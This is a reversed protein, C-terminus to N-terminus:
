ELIARNSTLVTSHPEHRGRVLEHPADPEEGRLPRLGLHDIILLDLDVLRPRKRDFTGDGRAAHLGSFLGQALVFLVSRGLRWARHGLARALHSKGAGTPGVNHRERVALLFACPPVLPWTSWVPAPSEFSTPEVFACTSSSATAVTWRMGCSALWSNAAPSTTSARRRRARTTPRCCAPCGSSRSSPACSTM